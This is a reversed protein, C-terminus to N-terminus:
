KLKRHRHLSAQSGVKKSRKKRGNNTQKNEGKRRKKHHSQFCHKAGYGLSTSGERQQGLYKVSAAAV